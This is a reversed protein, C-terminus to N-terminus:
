RFLWWPRPLRENPDGDSNPKAKDGNASEGPLVEFTLKGGEIRATGLLVGNKKAFAAISPILRTINAVEDQTLEIQPRNSGENGSEVPRSRSARPAVDAPQHEPESSFRPPPAPQLPTERVPSRATDRIKSTNRGPLIWCLTMIFLLIVGATVALM